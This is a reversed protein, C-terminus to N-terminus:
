FHMAVRRSSGKTTSSGHAKGRPPGMPPPAHSRCFGHSSFMHYAEAEIHAQNPPTHTYTAQGWDILYAVSMHDDFLVNQPNPDNQLWGQTHHWYHVMTTAALRAAHHLMADCHAQDHQVSRFAGTHTIPMGPSRQVIMWRRGTSDVGSLKVAGAATTARLENEAVNTKAFDGHLPGPTAVTYVISHSNGQNAFRQLTLQHGHLNIAILQDARRTLSRLADDAGSREVLDDLERLALDLDAKFPTPACYVFLTLCSLLSLLLPLRM